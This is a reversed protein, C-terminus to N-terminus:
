RKREKIYAIGDAFVREEEREGERNHIIVHSQEDQKAKKFACKVVEEKNTGECHILSSNEEEAKWGNASHTVHYFKKTAM